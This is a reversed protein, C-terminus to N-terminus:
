LWGSRKFARWLVVVIVAMLLLSLPYGVAWHLEPMHEFNMGYVGAVLTPGAVMAAYAALKRMDDNQQVSIQTARAQMVNDLLHDLTDITGRAHVLHDAIDRFYPLLGEPVPWKSRDSLLEQIPAHIPVVAKRFAVLERKLLYVRATSEAPAQAFVADEVEEVDETLEDAIAQYADVVTDVVHYAAAVSGYALLDPQAAARERIDDLRPWDGHRVTIAYHPGVFMSVEGLKVTDSAEDYKLTRLVVFASSDYVDVKPRQRATVADEVALPHLGFVRQLDSFEAYTPDQLLVWVFDDPETLTGAIESLGHVTPDTPVISRDRYAACEVIM